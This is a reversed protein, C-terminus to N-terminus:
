GRGGGGAGGAAAEDEVWAKDAGLRRRGAGGLWSWVRVQCTSMPRPNRRAPRLSPLASRM